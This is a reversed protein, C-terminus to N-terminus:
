IVICGFRTRLSWISARMPYIISRRNHFLSSPNPRSRLIISLFTKCITFFDKTKSSNILLRYTFHLRWNFYVDIGLFGVVIFVLLWISHYFAYLLILILLFIECFHCFFMFLEGLFARTTISSSHYAKLMENENSSSSSTAASILKNYKFYNILYVRSWLRKLKIKISNMFNM